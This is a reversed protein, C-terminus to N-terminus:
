RVEEPANSRTVYPLSPAARTERLVRVASVTHPAHKVALGFTVCDIAAVDAKGAAILAISDLHRGSMVVESFFRRDRALPAVERRLVNMGSQSTVGNITCRAGRLDERSAASSERNVGIFSRYSGGICGPTRYVPALLLFLCEWYGTLLPYGCTQSLLLESSRWLTDVSVGRLPEAPVGDVGHRAPARALGACWADTM